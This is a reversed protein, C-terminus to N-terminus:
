GDVNDEHAYLGLTDLLNKADCPLCEEHIINCGSKMVKIIFKVLFEQERLIDRLTTESICCDFQEEKSKSM